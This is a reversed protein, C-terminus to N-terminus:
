QGLKFMIKGGDPVDRIQAAFDALFRRRKDASIAALRIGDASQKTCFPPHAALLQGPELAGGDRQFRLLPELSLFEVPDVQVRSLFEALGLDM